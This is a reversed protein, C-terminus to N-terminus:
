GLFLRYTQAYWAPFKGNWTPTKKTLTTTAAGKKLTGNLSQLWTFKTRWHKPTREELRSPHYYTRRKTNVGARHIVDFDFELIHLRWLALKGTTETMTLLWKLAEHNTRVISRSRELHSRPLLVDWVVALYEKSTTALKKEAEALIRWLYGLQRMRGDQQQQLLVWVLHSECADIDITLHRDARPLDVNPLNTLLFNLQKVETEKAETLTQFQVTQEKCLKKNFPAAVRCFDPMFRRFVSFLGLFSRIEAQNTQKNLEGITSTMTNGIELCGPRIVLRFYDIEQSHVFREKVQTNSPQM